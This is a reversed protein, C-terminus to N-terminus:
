VECMMPCENTCFSCSNCKYYYSRCCLMCLAAPWFLVLLILFTVLSIGTRPILIGNQCSPCKNGGANVIVLGPHGFQDNIMVQPSRTQVQMQVVYQQQGDYTVPQGMLTQQQIIVPQQMLPQGQIQNNLVFQKENNSYQKM